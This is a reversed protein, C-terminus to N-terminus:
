GLICFFRNFKIGWYKAPVISSKEERIIRRKPELK